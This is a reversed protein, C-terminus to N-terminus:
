KLLVFGFCLLLLVAASYISYVTIGVTKVEVSFIKEVNHFM